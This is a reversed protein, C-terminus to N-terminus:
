AQVTVWPPPVCAVRNRASLACLSPVDGCLPLACALRCVLVALLMCVVKLEKMASKDLVKAGRANSPPSAAAPQAAGGAAATKQKKTAGQNGCGGAAQKADDEL